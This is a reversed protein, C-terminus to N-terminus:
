KSEDDENDCLNDKDIAITVNYSLNVSLGTVLLLARFTLIFRRIQFVFSGHVALGIRLRAQHRRM